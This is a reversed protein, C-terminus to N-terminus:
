NKPTFPNTALAWLAAGNVKAVRATYNFDVFQPLHAPPRRPRSARSWCGCRTRTPGPATGPRAPAWSTAAGIGRNPDTQSSATHRTGFSVLKLITAKIRDPDIERLMARLTPDPVQRSLAPDTEALATGSLLPAAVATVASASLFARRTSGARSRVDKNEMGWIM